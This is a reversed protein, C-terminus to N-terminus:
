APCGNAPGTPNPQRGAAGGLATWTGGLDKGVLEEFQRPDFVVYNDCVLGDRVRTRDM